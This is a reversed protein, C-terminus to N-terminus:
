KAGSVILYHCYDVGVGGRGGAGVRDGRLGGVGWDRGGGVRVGGM